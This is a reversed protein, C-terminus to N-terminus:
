QDRGRAPPDQGENEDRRSESVSLEPSSFAQFRRRRAVEALTLPSYSM